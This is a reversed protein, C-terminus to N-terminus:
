GAVSVLLAALGLLAVLVTLARGAQVEAKLALVSDYVKCQMQGTSQVVCTMWLGQWITQATVINSELFASVQWMPLGCAVIIGVWGVIGLGLGLIELAVSSM